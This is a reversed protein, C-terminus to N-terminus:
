CDENHKGFLDVFASASQGTGIFTAKICLYRFGDANLALSKVDDSDAINITGNYTTQNLHDKAQCLTWVNSISAASEFDVDHQNSVMFDFDVDKGSSLDATAISLQRHEFGGISMVESYATALVVNLVIIRNPHQEAAAPITAM